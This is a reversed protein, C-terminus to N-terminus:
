IKVLGRWILKAYFDEPNQYQFLDLPCLSVLPFLNSMYAETIKKKQEAHINNQKSPM